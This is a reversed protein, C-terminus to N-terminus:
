DQVLVLVRTHSLTPAPVVGDLAEIHGTEILERLLLNLHVKIQCGGLNDKKGISYNNPTAPNSFKSSNFNINSM